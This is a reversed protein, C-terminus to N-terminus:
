RRAGAESEAIRKLREISTEINLHADRRTKRLAGPMRRLFGIWRPILVAQYHEVVDTGGNAPTFTYRWRTSEQGKFLTHFALERGPEAVDVVCERSWRFPAKVNHGRFRAGPVAHDFGPLWECRRCVPSWEPMRTVDAVMAYLTDAPADIHARVEDEEIVEAM